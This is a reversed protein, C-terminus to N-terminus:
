TVGHLTMMKQIIALGDTKTLGARNLIQTSGQLLTATAASSSGGIWMQRSTVADLEIEATQYTTQNIGASIETGNYFIWHVNLGNPTSASTFYVNSGGIYVDWRCANNPPRTLSLSISGAGITFFGGWNAHGDLDFVTAVLFPQGLDLGATIMNSGGYRSATGNGNMDWLGNAVTAGDGNLLPMQAGIEPDITTADDDAISDFVFLADPAYWASGISLSAKFHDIDDQISARIVLDRINASEWDIRSDDILQLNNGDFDFENTKDGGIIVVAVTVQLGHLIRSL